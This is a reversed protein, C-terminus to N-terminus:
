RQSLGANRAYHIETVVRRNQAACTSVTCIAIPQARGYSFIHLRRASVGLRILLRRVAMARDHSLSMNSAPSGSDDSHGVVRIKIRSNAKLWRAQKKLVAKARRSLKKSGEKFFVRDGAAEILAERLNSRDPRVTTQWGAVPSIPTEARGVPSMSPIGLGRRGAAMQRDRTTQLYQRADEAAHTDPYKVILRRLYQEAHRKEGRRLARQAITFMALADREVSRRWPLVERPLEVGGSRAFGAAEVTAGASLSITSCCVALLMARLQSGERLFM